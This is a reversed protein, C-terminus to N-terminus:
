DHIKEWEKKVEAYCRLAEVKFQGRQLARWLTLFERKAQPGLTPGDKTHRQQIARQLVAIALTTPEESLTPERPPEDMLWSSALAGAYDFLGGPELENKDLPELVEEVRHHYFSVIGESPRARGAACAEDFHRELFTYLVDPTKISGEELGNFVAYLVLGCTSEWDDPCRWSIM